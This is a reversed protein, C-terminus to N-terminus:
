ATITALEVKHDSGKVGVLEINSTSPLTAASRLVYDLKKTSDVQPWTKAYSTDADEWRRNPVFPLWQDDMLEFPESNFDGMVIRRSAQPDFGDNGFVYAEPIQAAANEVNFSIHTCYAWIAPRGPLSVTVRLVKRGLSDAPNPVPLSHPVPNSISVRSVFAVGWTSGGYPERPYAIAGIGLGRNHWGVTLLYGVITDLQAANVEQLAALDAGHSDIVNAIQAPDNNTYTVNSTCVRFATM